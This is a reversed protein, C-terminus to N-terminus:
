AAKGHSAAFGVFYARLNPDSVPAVLAAVQDALSAEVSADGGREFGMAWRAFSRDEIPKDNLKVIAFHRHDGSIRMFTQEVAERPGELVQLFRRGGVVLCGTVDFSRNNRRSTALIEDMQMDSLPSRATSIYLIRHM